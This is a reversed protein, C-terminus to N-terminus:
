AWRGIISSGAKVRDGVKVQIDAERPLYIDVRSGFCIMGFREGRALYQGPKVFPIIRRALLGAIQTVLVRQRTESELVVAQQENRVAADQRFAAKYEGPRHQMETVVGAVPSRNVHVDFVDMFIAVRRAAGKLFLNEQVEDVFVVKGDAPSVIAEPGGPIPREPDRFFYAFFGSALLGLVTIWPWHGILGLFILVVGALIFNYGPAAILGRRKAASVTM